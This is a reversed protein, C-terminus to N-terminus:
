EPRALVTVIAMPPPSLTVTRRFRASESQYLSRLEQAFVAAQANTEFNIQWVYEGERGRKVCDSLWGRVAGLAPLVDSHSVLLAFGSVVGLSDAVGSVTCGPDQRDQWDFLVRSTQPLSELQQNVAEFGGKELLQCAYRMGLVYSAGRLLALPVPEEFVQAEKKRKEFSAVVSEWEYNCDLGGSVLMMVANADGELLATRARRMDSSRDAQMMQSISFYQDQLLHTLEHAILKDYNPPLKSTRSIVVIKGTKPDYYAGAVEAARAALSKEFSYDPPVFALAQYLETEFKLEEGTNNQAISARFDRRAQAPTKRVCAIDGM